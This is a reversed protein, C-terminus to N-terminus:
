GRAPQPLDPIRDVVLDAITRAPAELQIEGARAPVEVPYDEFRIQWATEGLKHRMVARGDVLYYKTGRLNSWRTIEIELTADWALDGGDFRGDEDLRADVTGLKFPSYRKAFLADYVDRRVLRRLEHRRADVPLVAVAVPRISAYDPHPEVEIRGQPVKTTSQCGAAAVAALVLPVVSRSRM